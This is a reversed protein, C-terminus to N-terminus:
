QLGEWFFELVQLKGVIIERCLMSYRLLIGRAGAAMIQRRQRRRRTADDAKRVWNGIGIVRDMEEVADELVSAGGNEVGSEEEGEVM